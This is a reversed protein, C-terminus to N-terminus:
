VLHLCIILLFNGGMLYEFKPTIVHACNCNKHVGEFNLVSCQFNPSDSQIKTLFKYFSRSIDWNNELFKISACNKSSFNSLKLLLSIKLFIEIIKPCVRNSSWLFYRRFVSFYARIGPRNQEFLLSTNNKSCFRGSM